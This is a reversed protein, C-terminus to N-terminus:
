LLLQSSVDLWKSLASFSSNEHKTKNQEAKNKSKMREKTNPRRWKISHKERGSCVNKNNEGEKRGEEIEKTGLISSLAESTSLLCQAMSKYGWGEKHRLRFCPRALSALFESQLGPVDAKAEQTDSIVPRCCWNWSSYHMLTWECQPM